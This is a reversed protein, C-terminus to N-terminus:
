HAIPGPKIILYLFFFSRWLLAAIMGEVHFYYTDFSLILNLLLGFGYGSFYINKAWAVGGVYGISQPPM